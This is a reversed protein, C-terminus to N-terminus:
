LIVEQRQKEILVCLLHHKYLLGNKDGHWRIKLLVIMKNEKNQNLPWFVCNMGGRPAAGLKNVNLGVLPLQEHM